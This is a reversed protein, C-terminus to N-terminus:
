FVLQEDTKPVQEQSTSPAQSIDTFNETKNTDGQGELYVGAPRDFYRKTNPYIRM